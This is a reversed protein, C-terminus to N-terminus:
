YLRWWPANECICLYNGGLYDLLRHWRLLWARCGASRMRAGSKCRIVSCTTPAFSAARVFLSRPAFINCRACLKLMNILHALRSVRQTTLIASEDQALVMIQLGSDFYPLSFDLVRDREPTTTIAAVAVDANGSRM